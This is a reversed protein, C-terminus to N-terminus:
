ENKQRMKFAWPYRTPRGLRIAMRVGGPSAIASDAIRLPYAASDFSVSALSCILLRLFLGLAYPERAALAADAEIEECRIDPVDKM